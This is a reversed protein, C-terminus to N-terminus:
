VRHGFEEFALQGHILEDQDEIKNIEKRNRMWCECVSGGGGRGGLFRCEGKLCTSSGM